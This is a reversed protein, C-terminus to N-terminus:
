KITLPCAARANYFRIKTRRRGSPTKWIQCIGTILEKRAATSDWDFESPSCDTCDPHSHITGVRVLKGDAAGFSGDETDFYVSDNDAEHDIPRIDVVSISDTNSVCWLSAIYENPHASLAQRRFWNLVKRDAHITVM